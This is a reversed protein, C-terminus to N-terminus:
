LELMETETWSKLLIHYPLGESLVRSYESSGGVFIDASAGPFM